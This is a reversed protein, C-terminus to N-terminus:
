PTGRTAPTRADYLRQWLTRVDGELGILRDRHVLVSGKIGGVEGELKGLRAEQGLQYAQFEQKLSVQSTKIDSLWALGVGAMTTGAASLLAVVARWGLLVHESTAARIIPSKEGADSM